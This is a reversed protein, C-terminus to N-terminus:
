YCPALHYPIRNSPHIKCACFPKM